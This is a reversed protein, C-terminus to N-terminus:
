RDDTGSLDGTKISLGTNNRIQEIAWGCADGVPVRMRDNGRAMEMLPVLTDDRLRGATLTGAYLRLPSPPEDAMIQKVLKRNADTVAQPPDDGEYIKGLAWMAAARNLGEYGDAEFELLIDTAPRYRNQGVLECLQADLKVNDETFPLMGVPLAKADAMRTTLWQTVSEMVDIRDTLRKLAWAATVSVNLDPHDILDVLPDVAAQHDIAVLAIVSQEATRWSSSALGDMFGDVILTRLSEASAGDGDATETAAVDVLRRRAKRRIPLNPDSLFMFLSECHGRKTSRSLLDVCTERFRPDIYRRPTSDAERGNAQIWESALETAVADHNKALAEFALWAAGSPTARSSWTLFLDTLARAAEDGSDRSLLKAAVTAEVPAGQLATAAFRKARDRNSQPTLTALADAAALLISDPQNTRLWTEVLSADQPNGVVAVARLAAIVHDPRSSPMDLTRRWDEVAVDSDERILKEQTIPELFPDDRSHEWLWRLDETSLPTHVLLAIWQRREASRSPRAAAWKKMPAIFSQPLIPDVLGDTLGLFEEERVYHMLDRRLKAQIRLPAEDYAALENPTPLEAINEYVTGPLPAGLPPDTLLSFTVEPQPMSSQGWTPSPTAAVILAGAIASLLIMPRISPSPIVQPLTPMVIKFTYRTASRLCM